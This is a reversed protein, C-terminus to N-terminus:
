VALSLLAAGVVPLVLNDTGGGLAAEVLTLAAAVGLAVPVSAPSLGGTAALAALTLALTTLLFTASGAYTKWAGLIRFARHGYRQGAVGAAADSLGMVLVGFAYPGRDPVALAVAAVGLPFWMEGLTSREVAHVAPFLDLRRSLLMFPVFLLALVAVAPFSTFWPLTAAVLASSVHASKRALEPEVKWRRNTAEAGALLAVFVVSFGAAAVIDHV